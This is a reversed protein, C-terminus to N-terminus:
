SRSTTTSDVPIHGSLASSHTAAAAPDPRSYQLADRRGRGKDAPLVVIQKDNDFSKVAIEVQVLAFEPLGEDAPLSM